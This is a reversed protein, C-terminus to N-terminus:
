WGWVSPWDSHVFWDKSVYRWSYQSVCCCSHAVRKGSACYTRFEHGLLVVFCTGKLVRTLYVGSAWWGVHALLIGEVWSCRSFILTDLDVAKSAKIFDCSRCSPVLEFNAEKETPSLTHSSPVFRFCMSPVGLSDGLHYPGKKTAVLIDWTAYWSSRGSVHFIWLM